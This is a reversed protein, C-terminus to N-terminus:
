LRIYAWGELQKLAAERIGSEVEEVWPLLEISRGEGRSVRARSQGCATLRLGPYADLLERMRVPFPALDARVLDMSDGHMVVQISLERGRLRADEFLFEIDDFLSEADAIGVDTVHLLVRGASQALGVPLFVNERDIEQVAIEVGDEVGAPAQWGGQGLFLIIGLSVVGVAAAVSSFMGVRRSGVVARFRSEPVIGDRYALSVLEKLQYLDCIERSLRESAAIFQLTHLRDEPSFEGDVFANLIEESPKQDTVAAV